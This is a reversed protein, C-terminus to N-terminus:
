PLVVGATLRPLREQFEPSVKGADHAWGAARGFPEAAFTAAFGAALTALQGLHDALLQPKDSGEAPTHAWLKFAELSLRRLPLSIGWTLALRTLSALARPQGAGPM